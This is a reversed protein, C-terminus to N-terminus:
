NEEMEIQKKEQAEKPLTVIVTHGRRPTTIKLIELQTLSIGSTDDQENM